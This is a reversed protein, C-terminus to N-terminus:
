PETHGIPTKGETLEDEEALGYVSTYVGLM